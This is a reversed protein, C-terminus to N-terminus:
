MLGLMSCASLVDVPSMDTEAKSEECISSASSTGRSSGSGDESSDDDRGTDLWAVGPLASLAMPRPSAPPPMAYSGLTEGRMLREILPPQSEVDCREGSPWAAARMRELQLRLAEDRPLRNAEAFSAAAVAATRARGLARMESALAVLHWESHRASTATPWHTLQHDVERACRQLGEAVGQADSGLVSMLHHAVLLAATAGFAVDKYGNRGLYSRAHQPEISEPLLRRQYSAVHHVGMGNLLHESDNGHIRPLADRPPSLFRVLHRLAAISARKTPAVGSFELVSKLTAGFIAGVTPTLRSAAASPRSKRIGGLSTSAGRQTKQSLVLKRLHLPKDHGMRGLSYGEGAARQLEHRQAPAM